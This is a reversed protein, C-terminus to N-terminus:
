PCVLFMRSCQVQRRCVFKAPRSHCTQVARFGAHCRGPCTQGGGTLLFSKMCYGEHKWHVHCVVQAHLYKSTQLHLYSHGYNKAKGGVQDFKLLSLMAVSCNLAGKRDGCRGRGHRRRRGPSVPSKQTVLPELAPRKCVQGEQFM